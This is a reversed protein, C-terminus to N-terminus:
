RDSAFPLSLRQVAYDSHRGPSLRVAPNSHLLHRLARTEAETLEHPDLGSARRAGSARSPSRGTSSRVSPVKARGASSARRSALSSSTGNSFGNASSRVSGGGALLSVIAGAGGFSGSERSHGPERSHGSEAVPRGSERLQGSEARAGGGGHLGAPRWPPQRASELQRSGSGAQQRSGTDAGQEWIRSGTDAGVTLVPKAYRARFDSDADVESEAQTAAEPLQAGVAALSDDDGLARARPRGQTTRAESRAALERGFDGRGAASGSRASRPPPPPSRPLARPSPREPTRPVRTPDLLDRSSDLLPREPTRPATRPEAVAAQLIEYAEALTQRRTQAHAPSSGAGESGAGLSGSHARAPTPASSAIQKQVRTPSGAFGPSNTSLARAERTSLLPAPSDPLLSPSDPLSSVLTARAEGLQTRLLSLEADSDARAALLAKEAEGALANCLSELETRHAANAASREAAVAAAVAASASPSPSPSPSSAAGGGLGNSQHLAKAKALAERAQALQSRLSAGESATSSRGSSHNMRTSSIQTALAERVQTLQAHMGVLQAKSSAGEARLESEFDDRARDLAARTEAAAQLALSAQLRALREASEAQWRARAAGIAQAAATAAAAAADRAGTNVATDAVAGAREESADVLALANDTSHALEATLASLRERLAGVEAAEALSDIRRVNAEGKFAQFSSTADELKARASRASSQFSAASAACAALEASKFGALNLAQMAEEEAQALEVAILSVNFRERLIVSSHILATAQHLANAKALAEGNSQSLAEAQAEALAQLEGVRAMIILMSDEKERAMAERAEALESRLSAGEFARTDRSSTALLEASAVAERASTLQVQMAALTAVAEARGRAAPLIEARAGALARAQADAAAELSAVRARLADADAAAAARARWLEPASDTNDYYSESVRGIESTQTYASSSARRIDGDAQTDTALSSRASASLQSSAVQVRGGVSVSRASATSLSGSGGAGGGGGPSNKSSGQPRAGRRVAVAPTTPLTSAVGSAADGGKSPAGTARETVGARSPAEHAREAGAAAGTSHAELSTSGGTVLGRDVSSFGDALGPLGASSKFEGAGNALVTPSDSTALLCSSALLPSGAIASVERADRTDMEKHVVVLAAEADRARAEAEGLRRKGIDAAQVLERLEARLASSRVVAEHRVELLEADREIAWEEREKRAQMSAREDAEGLIREKAAALNVCAGRAQELERRMAMAEAEAEFSREGLGNLASGLRDIEAHAARLASGMMECEAQAALVEAEM